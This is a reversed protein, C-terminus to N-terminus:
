PSSFDRAALDSTACSCFFRPTLARFQTNPIGLLQSETAFNACKRLNNPRAHCKERYTDLVSRRPACRVKAVFSANGCRTSATISVTAAAASLRPPHAAPHFALREETLALQGSSYSGSREQAKGRHGGRAAGVHGGGVAGRVSGVFCGVEAAIARV